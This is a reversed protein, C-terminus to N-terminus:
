RYSTRLKPLQHTHPLQLPHKYGATYYSNHRSALPIVTIPLGPTEKYASHFLVLSSFSKYQSEGVGISGKGGRRGTLSDARVNFEREHFGGAANRGIGLGIGRNGLFVTAGEGDM